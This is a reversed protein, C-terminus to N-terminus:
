AEDNENGGQAKREVYFGKESDPPNKPADKAGKKEWWSVVVFWRENRFRNGESDTMENTEVQDRINEIVIGSKPNNGQTRIREYELRDQDEAINFRKIKFDGLFTGPTPVRLPTVKAPM